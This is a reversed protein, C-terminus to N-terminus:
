CLRDSRDLLNKLNEPILQSSSDNRIWVSVGDDSLVRALSVPFEVNVNAEPAYDLSSLWEYAEVHTSFIEDGDPCTVYVGM